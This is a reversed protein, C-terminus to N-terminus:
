VVDWFCFLLFRAAGMHFGSILGFFRAAGVHFGPILGCFMSGGYSIRFDVWLFYAAGLHLGVILGFSVMRRGDSIRFDVCFVMSSGYAVRFDFWFCGQNEM